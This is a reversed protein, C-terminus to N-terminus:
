AGPLELNVVPRGDLTDPFWPTWTPPTRYPRAEGGQDTTHNPNYGGFSGAANDIRALMRDVSAQILDTVPEDLYHDSLDALQSVVYEDSVTM